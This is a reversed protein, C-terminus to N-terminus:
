CVNIFMNHYFRGRVRPQILLFSSQYYCQRAYLLLKRPHPQSVAALATLAKLWDGHTPHDVQCLPVEIYPWSPNLRDVRPHLYCPLITMARDKVIVPKLLSGKPEFFSNLKALIHDSRLLQPPPLQQFITWSSVIIGDHLIVRRQKLPKFIKVLKPKNKNPINRNSLSRHWSQLISHCKLLHSVIARAVCHHHSCVWGVDAMGGM